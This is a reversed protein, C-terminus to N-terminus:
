ELHYREMKAYLTKRDINLLRAAKSKNHKAKVLAEIILAKENSQNSAKLDSPNEPSPKGPYSSFRMEDPLSEAKAVGGQTLLVMRKIVNRLERLNGPWDYKFFISRVEEDIETVERNLERNALHTFHEIFLELDPGRERLAPLRIKFENLRYYLDERFEGNRISNM